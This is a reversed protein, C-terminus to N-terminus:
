CMPASTPDCARFVKRIADYDLSKLSAIVMPTAEYGAKTIAQAPNDQLEHFFGPNNLCANILEGFTIPTAGMCEGKQEPKSM